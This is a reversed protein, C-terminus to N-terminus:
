NAVTEPAWTRSPSTQCRTSPDSKEKQYWQSLEYEVRLGGNADSEQVGMGQSTHWVDCIIIDWLVIHGFMQFVGLHMTHLEDPRLDIGFLPNRHRALTDASPNWVTVSASEELKLSSWCTPSSATEQRCRCRSHGDDHDTRRARRRGTHLHGFCNCIKSQKSICTAKAHRALPMTCRSLRAHWPSSFMSVGETERWTGVSGVSADRLFVCTRTTPGPRSGSQQRSSRGTGSSWSFQASSDWPLGQWYESDTVLKGRIWPTDYNRTATRTSRMSGVVTCTWIAYQSCWGICGCRCMNKMRTTFFLRRGDTLMNVLWCATVAYRRQFPAGDVHLALLVAFQGDPRAQVVLHKEFQTSWDGALVQDRLRKEIGPTDAIEKALDEDVYAGHYPTM